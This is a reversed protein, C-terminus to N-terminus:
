FPMLFDRKPLDEDQIVRKPNEDMIEQLRDASVQLKSYMLMKLLETTRIRTSHADSAIFDALGSNVLNSALKKEKRGGYGALSTANVQLM